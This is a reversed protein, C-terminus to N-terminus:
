RAWFALDEFVGYKLPEHLLDEDRIAKMIDQLHAMDARNTLRSTDDIRVYLATALTDLDVHM